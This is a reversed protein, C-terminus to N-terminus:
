KVKEYFQKSLFQYNYTYAEESSDCLPVNAWALISFNAHLLEHNMISIDEAGWDMHPIWIIPPKGDNIPFTVGRAEFDSITASTDNNEQVFKLAKLTDQTIIVFVPMDFTSAEITIISFNGFSGKQIPNQCSIFLLLIILFKNM